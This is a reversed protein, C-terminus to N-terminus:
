ENNIQSESKVSCGTKVPWRTFSPNSLQILSLTLNSFGMAHLINETLLQDLLHIWGSSGVLLSYAYM